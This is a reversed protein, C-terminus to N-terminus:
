HMNVVKFLDEDKLSVLKFCILSMYIYFQALSGFPTQMLGIKQVLRYQSVQTLLMFAQICLIKSKNKYSRKLQFAIVYICCLDSVM